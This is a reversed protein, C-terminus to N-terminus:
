KNVEDFLDSLSSISGDKKETEDKEDEKEKADDKPADEQSESKKHKEKRRKLFIILFIVVVTIWVLAIAIISILSVIAEKNSAADTEENVETGYPALTTSEATESQGLSYQYYMVEAINLVDENINGNSELGNETQLKKILEVTNDDLVGTIGDETLGYGTHVFIWQLWKISEDSDGAVFDKTPKTYPNYLVNADYQDSETSSVAVSNDVTVIVKETVIVTVYQTAAPVPKISSINATTGETALNGGNNNGGIGSILDGLGGIISGGGIGDLISGGSGGGNVINGFADTVKEVVGGISNGISGTVANEVGGVIEDAKDTVAGLINTADAKYENKSAITTDAKNNKVGSFAVTFSVSFVVLACCFATLKKNM